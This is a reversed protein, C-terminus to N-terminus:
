AEVSPRASARSCSRCGHSASCPQPSGQDSSTVLTQSQPQRWRSRGETLRRPRYRGGATACPLAHKVGPCSNKPVAELRAVRRRRGPSPGRAGAAGLEHAGYYSSEHPGDLAAMAPGPADNKVSPPTPAKNNRCRSSIRMLELFPIHPPQWRHVSRAGPGPPGPSASGRAAGRATGRCKARQRPARRRARATKGPAPAAPTAPSAARGVGGASWGRRRRRWWGPACPATEGGCGADLSATNTRDGSSGRRIRAQCGPELPTHSTDPLSVDRGYLLRDPWRTNRRSLSVRRRGARHTAPARSRPSAEIM